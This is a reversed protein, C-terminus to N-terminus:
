QPDDALNAIAASLLAADLEEVSGSGRRALESLQGYASVPTELTVAKSMSPERASGSRPMAQEVLIECESLKDKIVNDVYIDDPTLSGCTAM